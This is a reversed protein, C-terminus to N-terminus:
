DRHGARSCGGEWAVHEGDVLSGLVPAWSAKSLLEEDAWSRDRDQQARADVQDQGTAGRGRGTGWSACHREWGTDGLAAGAEGAPYEMEIATAAVGVAAV